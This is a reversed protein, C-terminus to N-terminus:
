SIRKILLSIDAGRFARSGPMPSQTVVTNAPMAPLGQVTGMVTPRLGARQAEEVAQELPLGRLEPAIVVMEGIVAAFWDKMKQKERNTAGVEAAQTLAIRNRELAIQIEQPHPVLDLTMGGQGAANIMVTGYKLLRAWLSPVTTKIEQMKEYGISINTGYFIFFHRQVDIVRRSTFIFVDDAFNLYVILGWIVSTLLAAAIGVAAYFFLWAGSLLLFIAVIALLLPFILPRLLAWWHRSVIGLLTEQPDLRVNLAHSLPWKRTCVPDLPVLDAVPEPAALTNLIQQIAPDAIVPQPQTKPPDHADHIQTILTAVAQPSAINRFTLGRGGAALVTVRGYGFILEDLSSTQVDVAQVNHLQIENLQQTITGAIFIVRQDTIIYLQYWWSLADFIAWKALLGLLAIGM